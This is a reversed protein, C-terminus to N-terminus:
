HKKKKSKEENESKWRRIPCKCLEYIHCGNCHRDNNLYIDPRLCSSETLKSVQANNTFDVCQRIRTNVMYAGTKEEIYKLVEKRKETKEIKERNKFKKVYHRLIEFTVPTNSIVNYKKRIQKETFGQRLEDVCTKSIYSKVYEEPTSFKLKAAQKLFKVYSLKETQGSLLCVLEVPPLHKQKKVAKRKVPMKKNKLSKLSKKQVRYIGM